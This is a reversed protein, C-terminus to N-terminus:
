ALTKMLKKEAESKEWDKYQKFSCDPILDQNLDLFIEDDQPEKDKNKDWWYTDIIGDEKILDFLYLESFPTGKPIFKYPNTELKLEQSFLSSGLFVLGGVLSILKGM